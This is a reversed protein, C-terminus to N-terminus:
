SPNTTQSQSHAHSHLLASASAIVMWAGIIIAALTLVLRASRRDGSAPTKSFRQGIRLQGAIGIGFLVVGIILVLTAM